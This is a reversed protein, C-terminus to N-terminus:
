EQAAQTRNTAWDEAGGDGEVALQHTVRVTDASATRYFELVRDIASGRASM